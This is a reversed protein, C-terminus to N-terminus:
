PHLSREIEDLREGDTGAARALQIAIRTAAVYLDQVAPDGALAAVNRQITGV